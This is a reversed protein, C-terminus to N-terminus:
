WRLVRMALQIGVLRSQYLPLSQHESQQTRGSCPWLSRAQRPAKLVFLPRVLRGDDYKEVSAPDASLCHVYPLNVYATLSAFVTTSVDLDRLRGAPVPSSTWGQCAEACRITRNSDGVPPSHPRSSWLLVRPSGSDALKEFSLGGYSSRVLFPIRFLAVMTFLFKVRGVLAKMEM